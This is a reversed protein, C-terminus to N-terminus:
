KEEKTSIRQVIAAYETEFFECNKGSMGSVRDIVKERMDKAKDVTDAETMRLLVKTLWAKDNDEKSGAAEEKERQQVYKNSDFMGLFVDANLGLHSLAKTLADTMAKKSADHDIRGKASKIEALGRVPGFINAREGHWVAVDCVAFNDHFSHECEYSWGEGVPGFLETMKMIQSHADIASFKRGFSVQKVYKPDTKNSSNWLKMNDTM